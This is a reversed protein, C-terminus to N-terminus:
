DPSAPVVGVGEGFVLAGGHYSTLYLLVLGVAGPVVWVWRRSEAQPRLIGPLQGLVMVLFLLFTATGLDEHDQIAAAIETKRYGDADANGSVVSAAAGVTGAVLLTYAVRHWTERRCLLSAADVLVATTLLAIPYHIFIPHWPM